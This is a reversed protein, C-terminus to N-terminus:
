WGMRDRRCVLRIVRWDAHDILVTVKGDPTAAYM